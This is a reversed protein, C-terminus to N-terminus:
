RASGATNRTGKPCSYTVATKVGQANTISDVVTPIGLLPDKDAMYTLMAVLTANNQLDEIVLKDYTDRNTHWTSNSYDWGVANLGFVPSKACQFAANDTGGSAPGGVGSIRIFGTTQSPLEKLWSVIRPTASTFPGPGLGQIRGTGNDQNWGAVVKTVIDMNDEVWGRSGNLGQEEGGWHGVIITRKPNPYIKKLIRMAELMTITGTGNDTAGSGGDWSDFHASLVIYENPKESGRIMGIVNVMPLEGLFEADATVRVKPGQNNEALRYLLNYDECSADLTPVKQRWSGFIKNVGPYQSWNTTIVGAVGYQAPWEYQNGGNKTRDAWAATWARRTSDIRARAGPQGFEDWQAGNRCSPNPANMLVWKGRANATAWAAFEDPTKVNPYLVVDGEVARGGTGPSWGLMTAELSRVRPAILDVHSIGRRWSNWTGYQKKEAPIGWSAYTKVAWDAARHYGPSGALRPGISDLLVQALKGAQGTKMGEDWMRQIIPDTPPTTRVYTSTDVAPRAGGPGGQRGGQPAGAGPRAGQAAPLSGPAPAQAVGTGSPAPTTAPSSSGGCGVVALALGLGVMSRAM